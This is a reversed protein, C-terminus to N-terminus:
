RLHAFFTQVKHGVKRHDFPPGGLAAAARESMRVFLEITNLLATTSSSADAGAWCELIAVQVDSDM